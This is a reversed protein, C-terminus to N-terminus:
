GVIRYSFIWHDSRQAKGAEERENGRHCRARLLDHLTDNPLLPAPVRHAARLHTRQGLPGIAQVSM